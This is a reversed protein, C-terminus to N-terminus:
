LVQYFAYTSQKQSRLCTHQPRRGASYGLLLLKYRPIVGARTHRCCLGRITFLWHQCTSSSDFPDDHEMKQM